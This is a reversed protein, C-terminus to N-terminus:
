KAQNDLEALLDQLESDEVDAKVEAKPAETKVETKAPAPAPAPAAVAEEIVPPATKAKPPAKETKPAAAPKKTEDEDFGGDQAEGEQPEGSTLSKALKALEDKDRAHFKTYLDHRNALIKQIIQEVPKGAKDVVLPQKVNALFKSKTYDNWKNKKSISLQFLYAANEDYFVGFAQPDSPDGPSDSMVCAEWLDFVQKPANMWLVKGAVDDPNVGDKPFFINVAYMTRPLWQKAIERRRDKDDTETMRDFGFQCFPCDEEDHVRPCAHSKNNVWHSGNQLYFLDMSRSAQGDFCKDGQQMPPLIFFRYRLTEGDKAAPPRFEQPDKFRSGQKEQMKKRVADVDYKSM